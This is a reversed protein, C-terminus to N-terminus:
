FRIQRSLHCLHHSPETEVKMKAWVLYNEGFFSLCHFDVCKFWLAFDLRLIDGRNFHFSFYIFIIFKTYERLPITQRM